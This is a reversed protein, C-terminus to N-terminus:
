VVFFLGFGDATHKIGLALGYTFRFLVSFYSRNDLAAVIQVGPEIEQIMEELNVRAYKEDEIIAIKM